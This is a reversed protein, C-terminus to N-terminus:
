KVETVEWISMHTDFADHGGQERYAVHRADIENWAQVFTVKQGPQNTISYVVKYTKM